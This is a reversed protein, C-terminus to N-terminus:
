PTEGAETEKSEEAEETEEPSKGILYLRFYYTNDFDGTTISLCDYGNETIFSKDREATSDEFYWIARDIPLAGGEVKPEDIEEKAFDVDNIDKVIHGPFYFGLVSIRLHENNTVIYDEPGAKEQFFSVIKETGTDYESVLRATYGMYCLYFIFAGMIAVVVKRYEVHELLVIFGLWFLGFAPSAYRAMFVPSVFLNCFVGVIMVLYIVSICLLAFVVEEKRPDLKEGEPVKSEKFFVPYLALLIVAALLIVTSKEMEIVYNMYSRITAFTFQIRDEHGAINYQGMLPVMWPLYGLISLGAPVAWKRIDKKNRLLTFVLLYFFVFFHCLTAFHHTYAGGLTMLVLIIVNKRSYERYVKWAYIGSMTVFFMALSYMRMETSLYMANHELTTVFIYLAALVGTHASNRMVRNKMVLVGVWIHMAIIPLASFLKMLRFHYGFVSIILKMLIAYLPPHDDVLITGILEPWSRLSYLITSAEDNWVNYNFILSVQLIATIVISFIILRKNQKMIRENM